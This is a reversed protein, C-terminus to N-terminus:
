RRQSRSRRPSVAGRYTGASAGRCACEQWPRLEQRLAPVSVPGAPRYGQRARQQGPLLSLPLSLPDARGPCASKGAGPSAHITKQTAPARCHFSFASLPWGEELFVSNKRKEAIRPYFISSRNKPITKRHPNEATQRIQCRSFPNSITTVGRRPIRRSNNKGSPKRRGTTQSSLLTGHKNIGIKKPQNIATHAAGTAHVTNKPRTQIQHGPRNGTKGPPARPTRLNKRLTQDQSLVFAPPTSLVHLDSSSGAKPRPILPSRTLLV